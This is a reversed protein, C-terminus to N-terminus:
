GIWVNWGKKFPAYVKTTKTQTIQCSSTYYRETGTVYARWVGYQGNGASHPPVPFTFSNGITVALSTTAAIGYTQSISALKVSLAVNASGSMSASVTGTSTSTLTMSATADTGNFDSHTPGVASFWDAGRGTPTFYWGPTCAGEPPPDPSGPPAAMAAPSVGVVLTAAIVAAVVLRRPRIHTSILDSM